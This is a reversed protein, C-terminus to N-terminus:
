SVQVAQARLASRSKNSQLTITTSPMAKHHNGQDFLVSNGIVMHMGLAGLETSANLLNNVISTSNIFTSHLLLINEFLLCSKKQNYYRFDGVVGIYVYFNKYCAPLLQYAKDLTTKHTCTDMIFCLWTHMYGHYFM